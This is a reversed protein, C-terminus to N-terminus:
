GKLLVERNRVQRDLAAAKDHEGAARFAAKQANLQELSITKVRATETGRESGASVDPRTRAPAQTTAGPKAPTATKDRRKEFADRLIDLPVGRHEAVFAQWEPESGAKEAAREQETLNMAEAVARTRWDSIRNTLDNSKLTLRNQAALHAGTYGDQQMAQELRQEEAALAAQEQQLSQGEAQLRAMIGRGATPPTAEPTRQPTVGQQTFREMAKEVAQAAARAAITAIYADREAQVADGAGGAGGPAETHAADDISSDGAGEGAVPGGEPEM